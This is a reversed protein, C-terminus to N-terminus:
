SLLKLASQRALHHFNLYDDYVPKNKNEITKLVQKNLQNIETFSIKNKLFAEVAIENSANLVCASTGGKDIVDICLNIGSFMERNPLDFTLEPYDLFNFRSSESKIRHPYTMAYQISTRIDSKGLQAKMAGDEFQVISKIISQPHDIIELQQSKFDFLWKAQILDFGIHIQTMSDIVQKSDKSNSLSIPLQSVRMGKIQESSFNRLANDAMFSVKEIPNHFEGLLSQFIASHIPSVPYIHVGKKKALASVLEGAVLLTETNALLVEKIACIATISLRLGPYGKVANFVTHIHTSEIVQSLAEEGCYVHIDENWLADKVKKYEDEAGIVVTNPKFCLAQEILLTSNSYASIVQLDFFDPNCEIVEM